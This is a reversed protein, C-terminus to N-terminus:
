DIVVMRGTQSGTRTSLQYFYTGAPQRTGSADRRDWTAVHPGASQTENVLTRVWRGQADYVRLLVPEDDEMRFHVNAVDTVPNPFTMLRDARGGVPDDGVTAVPLAPIRIVNVVFKGILGAQSAPSTNLLLMLEQGIEAPQTTWTGNDGIHFSAPTTTFTGLLAGYPGDVMPQTPDVLGLLGEPGFYGTSYVSNPLAPDKMSGYPLVIFRDGDAAVLGTPAPLVTNRNIVVQSVDRSGSPVHIVTITVSGEMSALDADSMNLSLRLEQGVHAPQITFSGARGFFQYDTMNGTFGGILAGYPMGSSILQTGSTWNAQGAPGFWGRDFRLPLADTRLSGEAIFIVESSTNVPFIGTHVPQTTSSDITVVVSQVYQASATSAGAIAIAAVVLMALWPNRRAPTKDLVRNLM